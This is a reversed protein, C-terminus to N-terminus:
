RSKQRSPRGRHRSRRAKWPLFPCAAFGDVGGVAPVKVALQDPWPRAATGRGRCAPSRKRAAFATAHRQAAQQELGGVQQQEVLGGVVQIGFRHQPQLLEKMAVLAGHEGHRVIAVEEVVNGLPNALDVAAAQVEGRVYGSVLAARYPRGPGARSAFSALRMCFSSSHPANTESPEGPWSCPGDGFNM